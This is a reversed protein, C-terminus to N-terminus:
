LIKCPPCLRDETNPDQKQNTKIKKSPNTKDKGTDSITKKKNVGKPKELPKIKDKGTDSITKKKNVGKPKELPKEIPKTIYIVKRPKENAKDTKANLFNIFYSTKISKLPEKLNNLAEKALKFAIIAQKESSLNEFLPVYHPDTLATKISNMVYRKNEKHAKFHFTFRKIPKHTVNDLKLINRYIESEKSWSISHNYGKLKLRNLIYIFYNKVILKAVPNLNEKNISKIHEVLPLLYIYHKLTLDDLENTLCINIKPNVKKIQSLIEIDIRKHKISSRLLYLIDWLSNKEFNLDHNHLYNTLSAREKQLLNVYISTQMSATSYRTDIKDINLQDLETIGQNIPINFDSSCSTIIFILLIPLSYITTLKLM